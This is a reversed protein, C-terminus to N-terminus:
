ETKSLQESVFNIWKSVPLKKEDIEEMLQQLSINYSQSHTVKYSLAIASLFVTRSEETSLVMWLCEKNEKEQQTRIDEKKKQEDELRKIQARVEKQQTRISTLESELKKMKEDLENKTRETDNKKYECNEQITKLDKLNAESCELITKLRKNEGWLLHLKEKLKTLERGFYEDTNKMSGVIQKAEKQENEFENNVLQFAETHKGITVRQETCTKQISEEIKDLTEIMTKVTNTQKSVEEIINQNSNTLDEEKRKVDISSGQKFQLEKLTVIKQKKEMIRRKLVDVREVLNDNAGIETSGKQEMQGEKETKTREKKVKGKENQKKHIKQIHAIKLEAEKLGEKVNDVFSDVSDDNGINAMSLLEEIKTDQVTEARQPTTDKDSM